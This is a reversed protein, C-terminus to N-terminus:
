LDEPFLFCGLGAWNHIGCCGIGVGSDDNLFDRIWVLMVVVLSSGDSMAM